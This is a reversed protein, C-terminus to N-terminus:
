TKEWVSIEYNIVKGDKFFLRVAIVKPFLSISSKERKDVEWRIANMLKKDGLADRLTMFYLNNSQGNKMIISINMEGNKLRPSKKFVIELVEKKTKGMLIKKEINSTSCAILFLSYFITIISFTLIKIM